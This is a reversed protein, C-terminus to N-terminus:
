LSVGSALNGRLKMVFKRVNKGALNVVGCRGTSTTNPNVINLNHEDLQKVHTLLCPGRYNILTM